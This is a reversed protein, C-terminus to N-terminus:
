ASRPNSKGPLSRRDRDRAKMTLAFAALAGARPNIERGHLNYRLILSPIDSPAYGEEEYVHYYCDFAYTFIHGSGCAPDDIGTEPGSM